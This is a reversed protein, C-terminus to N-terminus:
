PPLLPPLSSPLCASLSPSFWLGLSLSFYAEGTMDVIDDTAAATSNRGRIAIMVAASSKAKTTHTPAVTPVSVPAGSEEQHDGSRWDRRQATDPVSMVCWAFLQQQQRPEVTSDFRARSQQTRSCECWPCNQPYALNSNRGGRAM